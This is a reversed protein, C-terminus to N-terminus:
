ATRREDIQRDWCANSCVEGRREYPVIVGCYCLCDGREASEADPAWWDGDRYEWGEHKPCDPEGCVECPEAEDGAARDIDHQSVGYPLNWGPTPLGYEDRM